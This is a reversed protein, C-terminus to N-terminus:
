DFLECAESSECTRAATECVEEVDARGIAVHRGRLPGRHEGTGEERGSRRGFESQGVPLLRDLVDELLVGRAVRRSSWLSKAGAEDTRRGKGKNAGDDVEGDRGM